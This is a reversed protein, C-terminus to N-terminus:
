DEFDWHESVRYDIHHGNEDRKPQERKDADVDIELSSFDYCSYDIHCSQHDSISSYLRYHSLIQRLSGRNCKHIYQDIGLQHNIYKKYYRRYTM